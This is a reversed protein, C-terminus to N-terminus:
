GNGPHQRTQHRSSDGGQRHAYEVAACVNRFLRLCDRVPLKRTECWTDIRVGEVHELVLYPLGDETAGGDLLRVVNPHELGALVQRERLFRRLFHRDGLPPNVLKIAVQKHYQGDAREALYVTGM